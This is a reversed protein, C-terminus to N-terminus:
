DRYCDPPLECHNHSDQDQPQGLLPLHFVRQPHNCVCAIHTPSTRNRMLWTTGAYTIYMGRIMYCYFLFSRVPVRCLLATEQNMNSVFLSGSLLCMAATAQFLRLFILGYRTVNLAQMSIPTKSYAKQPVSASTVAACTTTNGPQQQQQQQPSPVYSDTLAGFHAYVPTASAYHSMVSPPPTTFPREPRRRPTTSHRACSIPPITRATAKIRSWQKPHPQWLLARRNRPHWVRDHHRRRGCRKANGARPRGRWGLCIGTRM